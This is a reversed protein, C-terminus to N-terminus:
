IDHNQIWREFENISLPKSFVYGQVMDCGIERLFDLQSETEIGEAVTQIGLKRALNVVAEVVWESRKEGERSFFIRDLKVADVDFESLLGLSSYGFGFDDLSCQFGVKHMQAVVNKVFSFEGGDFIISETMELEILSDPIAYQNKLREFGSLFHPDRFHQRSINVSIPFVPLEEDLRRRLLRCVQEFVYKDLTCILNSEEFLPIFDSPCIVGREPHHWRILAEAGGIKRDNLRVKPQLYVQFDGHNLSPEMLNMLDRKRQLTHILAEDYFFCVSEKEGAPNKSAIGAHDVLSAVDARPDDVPCAGQRIILPYPLSATDNFSNIDQVLLDLRSQLENPDSTRLCLVFEDARARAALEGDSLHRRIVGMLYRLTKDGEARGFRENILKFSQINLAVICYSSPPAAILLKRAAEYFRHINMDGTVPDIFAIREVSRRYKRFSYTMFVIIILFTLVTLSAILLTALVNQDTKVSIFDSPVITLLTWDYANLANYSMLVDYGDVTTFSLNGDRGNKINEELQHIDDILRHDKKEQFLSDLAMFFHLDKPSIIVRCDRDIISSVGTGGFGSSELLAQMNEKDIVGALVGATEGNKLIPVAYLISQGELFSVGRGGSVATSFADLERINKISGDTFRANGLLDVVAFTGFGSVGLKDSLYDLDQGQSDIESLYDAMLELSNSVNRLRSDIERTMQNAVDNVYARSIRDIAAQLHAANIVTAISVSLILLSLIILLTPRERSKKPTNM